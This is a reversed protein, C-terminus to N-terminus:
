RPPRPVEPRQPPPAPPAPPAVRAPQSPQGEVPKPTGELRELRRTLQEVLTELRDIREEPDYRMSAIYCIQSLLLGWLAQAFIDPTGYAEVVSIRARKASVSACPIM